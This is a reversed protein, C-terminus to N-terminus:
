SAILQDFQVKCKCTNSKAYPVFTPIIKKILNENPIAPVCFLNTFAM